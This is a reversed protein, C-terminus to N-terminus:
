QRLTDKKSKGIPLAVGFSRPDSPPQTKRQKKDGSQPTVVPNAPTQATLGPGSVPTDVGPVFVQKQVPQQTTKSSDAQGFCLSGYVSLAFFIIVLRM